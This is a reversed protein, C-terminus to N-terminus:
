FRPMRDISNAAAGAENKGGAELGAITSMAAVNGDVYRLRREPLELRRDLLDQLLVPRKGAVIIRQPALDREEGAIQREFGRGRDCIFGQVLGEGLGMRRLQTRMDPRQQRQAREVVQSVPRM